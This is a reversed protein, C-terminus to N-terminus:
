DRNPASRLIENRKVVFVQPRPAKRNWRIEVHMDRQNRLFGLLINLVRYEEDTLNDPLAQM